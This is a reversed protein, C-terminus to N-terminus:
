QMFHAHFRQNVALIMRITRFVICEVLPSHRHLCGLAGLRTVRSGLMSSTGLYAPVYVGPGSEVVWHHGIQESCWPVFQCAGQRM